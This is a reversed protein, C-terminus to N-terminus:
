GVIPLAFDLKQELILVGFRNLCLYVFFAKLHVNTCCEAESGEPSFFVYNLRKLSNMKTVGLAFSMTKIQMELQQLMSM